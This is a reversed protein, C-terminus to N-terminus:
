PSHEAPNTNPRYGITAELRSIDAARRALNGLVTTGSKEYALRPQDLLHRINRNSGTSLDLTVDAWGHAILGDVLHSGVFGAGGPALVRGGQPRM